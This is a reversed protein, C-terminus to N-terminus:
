HVCSRHCSWYDVLFFSVEGLARALCMNVYSLFVPVDAERAGEDRPDYVPKHATEQCHQLLGRLDAITDHLCFCYDAWSVLQQQFFAWLCSSVALLKYKGDFAKTCESCRHDLLVDSEGKVEPVAAQLVKPATFHFVQNVTFTDGDTTNGSLLERPLKEAELGAIPRASYFFSGSFFVVRELDEKQKKPMDKLLNNWIAANFLAGRRSLSDIAADNRDKADTSYLYFSFNPSVNALIINSLCSSLGSLDPRDSGRGGRGSVILNSFCNLIYIYLM